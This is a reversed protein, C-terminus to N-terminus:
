SKTKEDMLRAMERAFATQGDADFHYGDFRHDYPVLEDSNVGFYVDPFERVVDRQVAVLEPCRTYSKPDSVPSGDFRKHLSVEGVFIPAPIGMSRVDRLVSRLATRYSEAPTGIACDAEGQHYIVHTIPLGLKKAENVAEVLKDHLEGTKVWHFVSSGSIAIPLIFVNKDPHKDAWYDLAELAPNSGVGDSGLLPAAAVYINGKHINYLRNRPQFASSSSNAVNSQGFVLVCINEKDPIDDKCLVKNKLDTFGPKQQDRIHIMKDGMAYQLALLTISERWYVAASLLLAAVAVVAVGKRLPSGSRKVIKPM